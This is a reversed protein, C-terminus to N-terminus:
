RSTTTYIICHTHYVTAIWKREKKRESHVVPTGHLINHTDSTDSMMSDLKPLISSNYVKNHLNYYHLTTM